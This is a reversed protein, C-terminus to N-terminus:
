NYIYEIVSQKFPLNTNIAKVYREGDYYAPQLNGEKFVRIFDAMTKVQEPFYTAFVGVKEPTHCDSSGVPTLKLYRAYAEAKKCAEYSTSGNLVEIGDLGNVRLLHEELGRNNDRFPHAGFCIGGEAKVLDIFEQASVRKKPYRDIGFAVIDGELSYYEIGVFIPFNQEKSYAKAYEKLGMNDHDTICIGDLGKEKSLRVIEALRLHSDPSFTREHMHLDIFM